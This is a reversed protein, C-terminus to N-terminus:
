ETFHSRRLLDDYRSDARLSDYLPNVKLSVAGGSAREEFVRELWKFVEDRDGLGAYVYTMWYPSVYTQKSLEKIRSLTREAEVRKGAKGYAYVLWCLYAPNNELDKIKHFEGIAEESLGKVSYTLGLLAHAEAFEPDMELARQYQEIAEDYRRALTYVKAVDTSIILSLPDLEHARKIETIAEDFRGMYALFEGYWQHATAYNPSLEISRKFEKEAELWNWDNNMAMLGLTAHPESLMEDLELARKAAARGKALSEAQALLDDGNLFYYADGLGAYARAYAPDIEIAQKFYEVAKKYGDKTRKNWFYRGKLYAQYAEINNPNQNVRRASEEGCLRTILDCAVRESISDQMSFIDSVREDFPASWLTAGDSVRILQVTLRLRDGARQFSGDLVADVGQQRGIILPDQNANTYRRVASTPRVVIQRVNGLKTILADALGLSLYENDSTEGITKFPLVAISKLEPQNAASAEAKRGGRASWSSYLALVGASLLLCLAAVVLVARWRRTGSKRSAATLSLREHLDEASKGSDTREETVIRTRTQRELVLEEGTFPLERVSATFRYGRKPVTEIYSQGDQEKDLIKRLAYVNNTLNAEEVFNDPWLAKMMEDKEVLHGNREVLLALTEFAKPTLQVLEGNRWLRCETTDLQYPGFEYLRQSRRQM